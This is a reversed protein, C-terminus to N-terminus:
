RKRALQVLQKFDKIFFSAFVLSSVSGALLLHALQPLELLAILYISALMLAAALVPMRLTRYVERDTLQIHKKMYYHFTIRSTTYHICTAWAVGELGYYKLGFYILPLAVFLTNFLNLYFSVGPKGIGKLVLAPTGSIAFIMSALSLIRLPPAAEIWKEGFFLLIFDEALGIFLISVPFTIIATIRMIKLYYMRIQALDDQIKSYVPFFVKNCIGYLQTRLVESLTFALTYVGLLHATLLKGIILYDVHTRFFALISNVQAYISYGALQMLAAGHFTFTPRWRAKMWFMATSVVADVLYKMVLSWVGFGMFAMSVAVVSSLVSGLLSIKVLNKFDLRRMLMVRPVINLISFFLYFSLANLIPVLGPENYFSAGWDSFFFFFCLVLAAALALLFWFASAYRTTTLADDKRQVLANYLGMDSVERLLGIIVMAMGVMGFAETFLLRALILKVLFDTGKTALSSAANWKIGSVVKSRVGVVTM